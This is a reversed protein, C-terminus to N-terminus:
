AELQNFENDTLEVDAASLNEQIREPTRSGPIPVIFDKKHLMWALPSLVKKTLFFDTLLNLLLQNALVNVKSFRTIVRRADLGTYTTDAKNKGSLFGNGLPSFAVFGIGLEECTPTVDKEFMREM